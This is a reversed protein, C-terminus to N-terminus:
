ETLGYPEIHIWISTENLKASIDAEIQDCLSHATQVTWDGPVLLNFEIFRKAGSKRTRLQAVQVMPGGLHHVSEEIAHREPEPLAQDMLGQLSRLILSIGTRIINLAVGIAVIPDLIKWEPKFLLIGLAAVMGVSTWVDTMLHKADAELVISDTKRAVKLMAVSVGLNILSALISIGLGASLDKLEVPHIFRLAAEYIIAVAAVLILAGEAGSSFYEVKEHGYAHDDDAPREAILLVTFALAAAILNIGSEAADSLLGVSDTMLYAVSKLAMTALAAFISLLAMKQKLSFRNM